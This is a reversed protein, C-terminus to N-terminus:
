LRGINKAAVQSVVASTSSSFLGSDGHQARRKQIKGWPRRPPRSHLCSLETVFYETSVLPILQWNYTKMVVWGLEAGCATCPQCRAWSLFQSPTNLHAPIEPVLDARDSPMQGWNPSGFRILLALIQIATLHCEEVLELNKKHYENCKVFILPFQPHM